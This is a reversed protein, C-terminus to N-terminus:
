QTDNLNLVLRKWNQSTSAETTLVIAVLEHVCTSASTTYSGKAFTYFLPKLGVIAVLEHVRTSASTTYSGKAAAAGIAGIGALISM